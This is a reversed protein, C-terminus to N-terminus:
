RYNHCDPDPDTVPPPFLPPPPLPPFIEPPLDLPNGPDVPPEVVFAVKSDKGSKADKSSYSGDGRNPDLKALVAQVIPLAEPMAAIACQSIMRMSDPAATIAVEVIDGVLKEDAASAKISIKTIECACNPNASIESEVIALVQSPDVNIRHEISMSVSDCDASTSTQAPKQYAASLEALGAHIGTAQEDSVKVKGTERYASPEKLVSSDLVSAVKRSAARHTSLTLSDQSVFVPNAAALDASSKKVGPLHYNGSLAKDAAFSQSQSKDFDEINSILRTQPVEILQAAVPLGSCFISLLVLRPSAQMKM